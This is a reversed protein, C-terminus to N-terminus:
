GGRWTINTSLLCVPWNYTNLTSCLDKFCNAARGFPFDLPVFFLDGTLSGCVQSATILETEQRKEKGTKEGEGEQKMKGEGKKRTRNEEEERGRGRGEEDIRKM